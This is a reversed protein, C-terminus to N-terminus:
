LMKILTQHAERNLNREKHCIALIFSQFGTESKASLFSVKAIFVVLNRQQKQM